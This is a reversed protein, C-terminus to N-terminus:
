ISVVILLIIWQNNKFLICIHKVFVFTKHISYIYDLNLQSSSLFSKFQLDSILNCKLYSMMKGRIMNHYGTLM